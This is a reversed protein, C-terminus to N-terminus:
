LYSRVLPTANLAQQRREVEALRAAVHPRKPNLERARLFEARAAAFKGEALYMNGRMFAQFALAERSMEAPPLPEQRTHWRRRRVWVIIAVLAIVSASLMSLMIEEGERTPM